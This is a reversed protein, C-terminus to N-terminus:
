GDRIEGTMVDFPTYQLRFLHRADEWAPTGVTSCLRPM